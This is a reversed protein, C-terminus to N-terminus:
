LIFRPPIQQFSMFFYTQDLMLNGKIQLGLVAIKTLIAYKWKLDGYLSHIRTRRKLKRRLEIDKLHIIKYKLVIKKFFDELNQTGM